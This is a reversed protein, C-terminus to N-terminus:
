QFCCFSNDSSGSLRIPPERKEYFNITTHYPIEINKNVNKILNEHFYEVSKYLMRRIINASNDQVCSITYNLANWEECRNKIEDAEVQFPCKDSKNGILVILPIKDFEVNKDIEKKWKELEFWTNRDSIDYVMFAIDVSRLYSNVIIRKFKEAGACDWIQTKVEQYRKEDKKDNLSYKYYYDPINRNLPYNELQTIKHAFSIGITAPINPNFEDNNLLHIITSKGVSLSGLVLIKITYFPSIEQDEYELEM